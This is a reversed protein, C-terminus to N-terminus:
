KVVYVEQMWEITKPIGEELTVKPDHGFKKKAKEIDPRKNLINHKDEPLYSVLGSDAGTDEDILKDIEVPDINCTEREIDAFEPVGGACIVMNIIDAITYPSLVVKQGPKIIAKVALYIGVRGQPVCISNHISFRQQIEKEVKACDIRKRARWLVVDKLVSKYIQPSTYIRFRPNPLLISM